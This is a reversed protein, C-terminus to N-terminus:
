RKKSPRPWAGRSVGRHGFDHYPCQDGPTGFPIRMRANSLSLSREGPFSRSAFFAPFLKEIRRPCRPVLKQIGSMSQFCFAFTADASGQDLYNSCFRCSKKALNGLSFCFFLYAHPDVSTFAEAGSVLRIEVPVRGRIPEHPARV